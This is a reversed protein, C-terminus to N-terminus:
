SNAWDRYSKRSRRGFHVKETLAREIPWGNAVRQKVASYSVGLVECWEIMTRKEGRFELWRNQRTNRHQLKQPIWRCNEKTYGQDVDIRDLTMGVPRQGMDALFCKFDSRWRDCVKIGRGGYRHYDPAKPNHCRAKMLHWTNYTPSNRIGCAHGHRYFPNKERTQSM